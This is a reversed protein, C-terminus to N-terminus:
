ERGSTQPPNDGAAPAPSTSRLLGARALMTHLADRDSGDREWRGFREILVGDRFVLFQPTTDFDMPWQAAHTAIHIQTAPHRRNWARLMAAEAIATPAILWTAHAAFLPGLEPDLPIAAAAATSFSCGPSSVVVIRTGLDIADLRLTPVPADDAQITWIGVAGAPLPRATDLVPVPPLGADPLSETFARAQELRGGRLLAQQLDRHDTRMALGRSRLRAHLAVANDIRVDDPAEAARQVAARQLLRLDEGTDHDSAAERAILRDIAATADSAAHDRQLADQWSRYARLVDESPPGLRGEARAARLRTAEESTLGQFPADGDLLLRLMDAAEKTTLEAMLIDVPLTHLGQPGFGLSDLFLARAYPPMLDLPSANHSLWDDLAAASDFPPTAPADDLATAPAALLLALCLGFRTRRM